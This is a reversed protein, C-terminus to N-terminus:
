VSQRSTIIYRDIFYAINKTSLLFSVSPIIDQAVERKILKDNVQMIIADKDWAM